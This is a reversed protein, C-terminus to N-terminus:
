GDSPKSTKATMAGVAHGASSGGKLAEAAKKADDFGAVSTALGAAASDYSAIADDFAQAKQADTPRVATAILRIMGGIAGITPVLTGIVQTVQNIDGVIKDGTTQQGTPGNAGDAM